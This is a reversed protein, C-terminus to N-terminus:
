DIETIDVQKMLIKVEEDKWCAVNEQTVAQASLAVALKLTKQNSWKNVLGWCLSALLTDGAGVTSVVKVQPPTGEVM